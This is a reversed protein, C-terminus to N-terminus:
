PVAEDPSLKNRVSVQVAKSLRLAMLFNKIMGATQTPKPMAVLACAPHRVPAAAPATTGDDAWVSSGHLLAKVTFYIGFVAAAGLLKAGLVTIFYKRDEPNRMKILFRKM